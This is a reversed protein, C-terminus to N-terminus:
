RRPYTIDIVSGRLIKDGAKVPKGKSSLTPVVWHPRGTIKGVKFGADLLSAVFKMPAVGEPSPVEVLDPGKSLTVVVTSGRAVQQGAAPAVAAITGIKATPHFVPTSAVSLELQLGTLLARAKALTIGVMKPVTRPQPGASPVLEVTTGGPVKSGAVVSPSGPVDWRLVNGKTALEDFAPQAVKVVLGVQELKATAADVALGTLAPLTRLTPGTSVVLEVAAGKEVQTGAAPATRIVQGAAVTDNAERQVSATFGDALQNLAEAEVLGEVVPVTRHDVRTAVWAIAAGGLAVVVGLAVWLRRRGRRRRVFPLTGSGDTLTPDVLALPVESTPDGIVLAALDANVVEATVEAPTEVEVVPVTATVLDTEAGASVLRLPEPPALSAAAGALARAFEAATWRDNWNPRAARELVSRTLAEVLTLCLSYVDSQPVLLAGVAAEPSSYKAVDNIRTAAGGSVDDLIVALGADTVRLRSDAGFVLTGPRVDGHVVGHRHLADLAKCADIGVLVAQSPTLARGRDILDRLSGGTLREGVTYLVVRGNWPARGFDYLAPLNPHQVSEVALLLQKFQQQVVEMGSLDPHVLRIVVQRGLREDYADMLTVDVSSGLRAGIRYRGALLPTAGPDLHPGDTM